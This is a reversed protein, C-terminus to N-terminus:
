WVRKTRSRQSIEGEGTGVHVASYKLRESLNDPEITARRPIGINCSPLHVRQHPLQASRAARSVLEYFKESRQVILREVLGNRRTDRAAETRASPNLLAVPAALPLLRFM